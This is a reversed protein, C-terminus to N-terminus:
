DRNAHRNHQVPGVVPKVLLRSPGDAPNRDSRVWRVDLSVCFALAHAALVRLRRLLAHSSSRGKRIAYAAVSSDVVLTLRSGPAAPQAAAWRLATTAARVELGNIHEGDDRKWQSAVVTRWQLEEPAVRRGSHTCRPCARRSVATLAAPDAVSEDEASRPLGAVDRADPATCLPVGRPPEAVVVGLGVTSADSAVVTRFQVADLSATLLPALGMATHLERRVSNWIVFRVPGASRIFHYVSTFVSLSPRRVLCAWTWHGMLVELERGTCQKQSLLRRTEICLAVLKQPSVGITHRVGDFLMGLVKLGDATPWVVKDPNVPVREREAAAIYQRMEATVAAKDHGFFPSDDIYHARRVRNLRTDNGAAILASRDLGAARCAFNVHWLQVLYVSWSWGMPVTRLMPWVRKAGRLHLPVVSGMVKPDIAPLCFFPRFAAPMLLAHFFNSLDITGAYIPGSSAPTLAAFDDPAPLHPNPPIRFLRNCKRGDFIIRQVPPADPATPKGVAFLSNVCRPSTTWDLMGAAAMRRYLKPQEESDGNFRGRLLKDSRTSGPPDALMKGLELTGGPLFKGIRATAPTSPLAIASAVIRQAAPTPGCYAATGDELFAAGSDPGARRQVGRIRDALEDASPGARRVFESILPLLAAQSQRQQGNVKQNSFAAPIHHREANQPPAPAADQASQPHLLQNIQDAVANPARAMSVRLQNLARQCQGLFLARNAARKERQLVRRSRSGSRWVDTNVPLPFVNDPRSM